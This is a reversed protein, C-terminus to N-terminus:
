PVTVTRCGVYRGSGPTGVLNRAVVCVTHTGRSLTRSFAYAHYSGYGPMLTALDRRLGSATVSTVTKRDVVLAVVSASSRDPDLAWGRVTVTRSSRALSTLAGTGDHVVVTRCLLTRSVGPTGTANDARLCVAHKGAALSLATQFAHASGYGPWRSAATSSTRSATTAGTRTGDVLVSVPIAGAADADYADGAVLVKGGPVTRLATVTGVADHTVDVQTCPLELDTGATGDANTVRVCVEHSGVPLDLTTAFGHGAGQATYAPLQPRALDAVFTSFVEGDSLVEVDAAQALDPDLAWGRVTVGGPARQVLELAGVPTHEVKVTKCGVTTDAGATGAANPALLCLTHTGEELDLVATVGHLDGIGPFRLGIDLRNV